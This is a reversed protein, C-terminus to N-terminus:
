WERNAAPANRFRRGPSPDRGRAGRAPKPARRRQALAGREFGIIRDVGLREVEGNDGVGHIDRRQSRLDRQGGNRPEFMKLATIPAAVQMVMEPRPLGGPRAIQLHRVRLDRNGAEGIGQDQGGRVRTDISRPQREVADFGLRAPDGETAIILVLGSDRTRVAQVQAGIRKIRRIEFGFKLGREAAVSTEQRAGKAAGGHGVPQLLAAGLSGDGDVVEIKAGHAHVTEFRAQYPIDRADIEVVQM